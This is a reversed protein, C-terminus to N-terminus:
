RSGSAGRTPRTPAAETGCAATGCSSAAGRCRPRSRTSAARVPDALAGRPALGPHDAHRREGRHFRHAGVDHQLHARRAAQPDPDGSRRRPHAARDRGPRDRDVVALVRPLRSRARARRRPAGVRARPDARVGQRARAPQLHARHALGRVPQGCPRRQRRARHSLSGGHARRAVRARHREGLDHLRRTRHPPRSSGSRDHLARLAEWSSLAAGGAAFPM